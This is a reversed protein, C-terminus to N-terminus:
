WRTRWWRYRCGRCLINTTTCFITCYKLVQISINQSHKKTHYGTEVNQLDVLYSLRIPNFETLSSSPTTASISTGSVEIFLIDPGDEM